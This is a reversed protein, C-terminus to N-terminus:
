AIHRRMIDGLERAMRFLEREAALHPDHRDHEAVDPAERGERFPHIRLGQGMEHVMKQRRHRLDDRAVLARDVFIDAIADHREPVRRQVIGIMGLVRHARNLLHAARQDIQIALPFGFRGDAPLFNLGTFIPM